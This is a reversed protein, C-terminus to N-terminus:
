ELSIELRDGDEDDVVEFLTRGPRLQAAALLFDPDVARLQPVWRSGVRLALGLVGLPLQVDVRSRGQGDLVRLRLWQANSRGWGGGLVDVPSTAPTHRSSDPGFSIRAGRTRWLATGAARRSGNEVARPAPAVPPPVVRVESVHSAVAGTPGVHAGHTAPAPQLVRILEVAQDATIRGAELLDLVRRREEDM